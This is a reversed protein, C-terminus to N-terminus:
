FGLRRTHAQELPRELPPQLLDLPHRPYRNPHAATAASPVHIVLANSGSKAHMM